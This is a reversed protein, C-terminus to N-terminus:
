DITSKSDVSVLKVYKDWIERGMIHQEKEYRLITKRHLGLIVGLEKQTLRNDERIKRAQNGQGHFLFLHYDDLLKIIDMDFLEALLMLKDLPYDIMGNEYDVYTVRDVGIYEAVQSQHLSKRLRHYKLKDAIKELQDPHSFNFKVKDSMSRPLLISFSHIYLGAYVFTNNSHKSMMFMNDGLTNLIQWKHNNESAM